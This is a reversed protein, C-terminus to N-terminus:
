VTLEFQAMTETVIEVERERFAVGVAEPVQIWSLPTQEPMSGVWEMITDNTPEPLRLSQEKVLSRGLTEERFLEDALQLLYQHESNSVVLGGYVITGLTYRIHQWPVQKTDAFIHTLIKAAFLLTNDNVDYQQIASVQSYRLRELLVSHFWCLLLITKKQVTELRSGLVDSVLKVSAKVNSRLSPPTEFMVVRALQLLARPLSSTLLCTVFLRFSPHLNLGSLKRPLKSIWDLALHGNQILVWRGALAAGEIEMDATDTGEVTGMSVISLKRDRALREISLSADSGRLSPLLFVQDTGSVWDQLDFQNRFFLINLSTGVEVLQAMVRSSWEPTRPGELASELGSIAPKSGLAKLSNDEVALFLEYLVVAAALRHHLNMACYMWRFAEEYLRVAFDPSKPDVNWELLRHFMQVLLSLSFNYFGSVGSFFSFVLFIHRVHRTVKTYSLCVEKARAIIDSAKKHQEDVEHARTKIAELSDVVEDNELFHGDALNLCSLLESEIDRLIARYKDQLALSENRQAQIDSHFQHLILDLVQTGVSALTIAFNVPVVRSEVFSDLTYAPDRTHLYLQFGPSVDVSNANFQVIARGGNRHFDRRLLPDMCHDYLEADRVVIPTGFKLANEVSTVFSPELFSTVVTSPELITQSATDEPDIIFPVLRLDLAQEIIITNQTALQDGARTALSLVGSDDNQDFPLGCKRLQSRVTEVATLRQHEDLGGCYVVVAAAVVANGVLSNRAAGFSDITRQWRERESNLSDILRLSRGMKGEVVAMERRLAETDRILLMYREKLAEIEAELETIMEDIAILQAKTTRAHEEIATVENRLPGIQDLITAYSLQAKVWALLPGCAKSARDVAEYTYDERSLYVSEMHALLSASVQRENDFGVINAIFDDRRIIVQVERWSSTRYGLLTCVSEMTMKVAAPPSGMSRLETLHQKKINQVGKQAAAVAPEAEALDAMVKKRRQEIEKEQRALANQTDVSFEQRREAENQDTLLKNLTNKAEQEKQALQGKKEGLQAKLTRVEIVAGRLRNLGSTTHAQMEELRDAQHVYINRFGAVLRVFLAPSDVGALQRHITVLADCVVDYLSEVPVPVVKEFAEPVRYESSSFPVGLVALHAVQFMSKNSWDGMWSLTCRNLLAPSSIIGSSLGMTFIVHLHSSIEGRFWGLLEDDTELSLGQLLSQEKCLLHLSHLDEEEFLGPAECNALISNMREIFSIDVVSTEDIMLCTGEGRACGLLVRRLFSEFDGLTYKSHTVLQHVKLGNMWAAFRCLTTRGSASPGVLIMHGQPQRLVRDIRLCHDMLDDYIVLTTEKEEEGYLRLRETLLPALDQPSVEEYKLTLWTSYLVPEALVKQLSLGPFRSGVVSHFRSSVWRRDADDRLRDCFIRLGEHYWARLLSAVLTHEKERLIVLVGRTWRTLERPSYVYLLQQLCGHYMDLMAETMPTSFGRLSPAVTLVAKNFALYIQRLSAHGPHDVMVVTTHRLFRDPLENRGQDSSPNCAGVFQIHHLQVWENAQWFGQQEVMQRLAGIITQSGYKDFGPLNIEDCFVVAWKGSVKPSLVMGTNHRKYVCHAELSKVLLLPPSDKSFNLPIVDMNPSRRLAEMVTMTKGSGPPGCLVMPEHENLLAFILEEHRVTDLTPVVTDARMVDLPQLDPTHLGWPRWSASPLAITHDICVFGEELHQAFEEKDALSCDGAVAWTLALMSAKTLYAVVDQQSYYDSSGLLTRCYSQMRVFYTRIARTQNYKLVHKQQQSYKLSDMICKGDSVFECIWGVEVNNRRSVDRVASGFRFLNHQFVMDNTVGERNFYVMGCRTVTAPTAYDLSATEFIIRVNGPLRLREGNPLTLLRNDDLVSNLNEAWEPDIDGDFVIWIRRELEGRLNNNIRRLISTILGDTWDRTVNDLNGFLEDKSLIKCDIVHVVSERSELEDLAELLLTRTVTKGTGAAGLLIVGQHSQQVQNLLVINQVFNDDVVLGSKSAIKRIKDVLKTEGVDVSVGDFYQRALQHFILTDEEVLKPLVTEFLSRLVAAEESEGTMFHRGSCDVCRKLARLGFDYHKCDSAAAALDRLFSVIVGALNEANAFNRSSLLVKAIVNRDPENMSFGVFLRKISEPLEYRGAYGPNMTIFLATKKDQYELREIQSSVASLINDNLRNFEDFCGWCGLRCIGVFLRSMAQFDFTDDCCFLVVMQGLSYGLAKVAETKGTGAPGFPAGGLKQSLAEMMAHNCRDILPTYALKDPVGLYEFGYTFSSSGQKVTVSTLPSASRDLHYLQIIKLWSLPSSQLQLFAATDRNHIEEIIWHQLKRQLSHPVTASRAALLQILETRTALLQSLSGNSVADELQESFRIKSVLFQIQGPVQLLFSLVEDENPAEFLAGYTDSFERTHSALAYKVQYDLEKLWDILTEYKPLAIPNVLNLREDDDSVVQTITSSDVVLASVGFFMKKIHKNVVAMDRGSMLELLDENGVLYFRPFLQRQRELFDSLARTIKQLSEWMEKLNTPVELIARASDQSQIRKLVEFFEYTINQFRTSEIPLVSRVEAKNRGFVGYLYVWVRQIEVFTGLMSAFLHLRNEFVLADGELAKYYTSSRMTALARLDLDSQDLIEKGNRILSCLGEYDYYTFSLSAWNQQMELLSTKLTREASAQSLVSNIKMKNKELDLDLITAWTINNIDVDSQGLLSVIQKWHHQELSATKLDNILRFNKLFSKISAQIEQVTQFSHVSASLSKTATLISELKHRVELTATSWQSHKIHQLDTWLGLITQWMSEYNIIEEEIRSLSSEPLKIPSSVSSAVAEFAAGVKQLRLNEKRYTKLKEIVVPPLAVDLSFDQDRWEKQYSEVQAVYLQIAPTLSGSIEAAMSQWQELRLKKLGRLVQLRNHLQETVVSNEVLNMQLTKAMKDIIKYDQQGANIVTETDLVDKYHVSKEEVSRKSTFPAELQRICGNVQGLTSEYNQHVVVAMAGLFGSYFRDFRVQSRPLIRGFDLSIHGVTYKPSELVGSVVTISRSLEFWSVLTNDRLLGTIQPGGVESLCLIKTWSDVYNKVQEMLADVAQMSAAIQNAVMDSIAIMMGGVKQETVRVVENIKSIASTKAKSLPPTFVLKKGEFSVSHACEDYTITALQHRCKRALIEGVDHNIRLALDSEDLAVKALEMLVTGLTQEIARFSYECAELQDFKSQLLHDFENFLHVQYHLRQVLSQFAELAKLAQAEITTDGTFSLENLEVLNQFHVWQFRALEVCKEIVDKVPDQLLERSPKDGGSALVKKVFVMGEDIYGAIAIIPALATFAKSIAVPVEFYGAYEQYKNYEIAILTIDVEFEGHFIRRLLVESVLQATKSALWAIFLKEPDIVSMFVDMESALRTGLTYHEWNGIVGTLVTKILNARARLGVCISFEETSKGFALHTSHLIELERQAVLLIRMKDSDLLLPPLQINRASFDILLTSIQATDSCMRFRHGLNTQLEDMAENYSQNYIREALDWKRSLDFPDADNRLHTWAQRMLRIQDSESYCAKFTAMLNDHKHNLSSLSTLRDQLSKSLTQDVKIVTFRENRKRSLERLLEVVSLINEDLVALVAQTQSVTEDFSPDGFLDKARLTQIVQRVVANSVGTVLDVARSTTFNGHNKLRRLYGFAAVIAPELRDLQDNLLIDDIPLDRLIANMMRSRSVADDIGTDNEFSSAVRQRKGLQLLKLSNQVQPSAVQHQLAALASDMSKWFQIHDLLSESDQPSHDLSTVSKIQRIWSVVISNVQNLVEPDEALRRLEDPAKDPEYDFNRLSTHVLLVLDPIEITQQLHQLALSLESFKGRTKGATQGYNRHTAVMSEFYPVVGLNLLSRVAEFGDDGTFPVKWTSITTADFQGKPKIVVTLTSFEGGTPGASDLVEGGHANAAIYVADHGQSSTFLHLRRHTDSISSADLDLVRAIHSVLLATSMSSTEFQPTYTCNYALLLNIQVAVTVHAIPFVLLRRDRHRTPSGKLVSWELRM